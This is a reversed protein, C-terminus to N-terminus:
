SRRPAPRKLAFMPEGEVEVIAHETGECLMRAAQELWYRVPKGTDSALERAVRNVRAELAMALREQAIVDDAAAEAPRRVTVLDDGM